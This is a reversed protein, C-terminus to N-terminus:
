LRWANGCADVYRVRESLAPASWWLSRETRNQKVTIVTQCLASAPETLARRVRAKQTHNSRFRLTFPQKQQEDVIEQSDLTVEACRLQM